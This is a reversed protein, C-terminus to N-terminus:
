RSPTPRSGTRPTCAGYRATSAGLVRAGIPMTQLYTAGVAVVVQERVDQHSQRARTRGRVTRACACFAPRDLVSQTIRVRADVNAFPGIVGAFRSLRHGGTSQSQAASREAPRGAPIRACRVSTQQHQGDTARITERSLLVGLNWRLGREISRRVFAGANSAYRGRVCRGALATQPKWDPSMGSQAHAAGGM